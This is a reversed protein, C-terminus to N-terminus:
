TKQCRRVCLNIQQRNKTKKKKRLESIEILYYTCIHIYEYISNKLYQGDYIYTYMRVSHLLLHCFLIFATYLYSNRFTTYMVCIYM